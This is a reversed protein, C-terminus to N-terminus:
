ELEFHSYDPKPKGNKDKFRGGWKLGLKEGIAGAEEYDPIKNKNVSIKVDWTAKGNKDLLAIDFARAKDNNPNNDYLNVIHKSAMTWTVPKKNEKETIDPMNAAKRLRNVEDLSQRGQAYLATQEQISRATCTIFFPLEVKKCEELFKNALIQLEPVLDDIRRSAM